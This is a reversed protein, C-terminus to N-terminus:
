GDVPESLVIGEGFPHSGVSSYSVVETFTSIEPDNPILAKIEFSFYKAHRHTWQLLSLIEGDFKRM